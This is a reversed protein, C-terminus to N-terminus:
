KGRVRAISGFFEVIVIAVAASIISNIMGQKTPPLRLGFGVFCGVALALEVIFRNKEISLLFQPAQFDPLIKGFIKDLLNRLASKIKTILKSPSTLIFTILIAGLLWVLGQVQSIMSKSVTNYIALAADKNEPQALQGVQDEGIKISALLALSTVFLVSVIVIGTKRKNKALFLALAISIILLLVLIQPAREIYNLYTRAQPVAKIDAIQINGVKPPINKNLLFSIQSNELNQNAYSYLSNITIVGTNSDNRLYAIITSQSNKLIETWIKQAEASQLAKNIQSQTFGEIQSSLPGALFQINEPLSEQLKQEVDVKSFLEKSLKTSINETIAPESILPQNTAVFQDTNTITRNILISANLAIFSLATVIVLLVIVASKLWRFKGPKEKAQQANIHELQKLLIKNEEILEEKTMVTAKKKAM